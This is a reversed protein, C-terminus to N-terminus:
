KDKKYQKHRKYLQQFNLEYFIDDSYVFGSKSYDTMDYDKGNLKACCSGCCHIVRTSVIRWIKVLQSELAFLLVLSASLSMWIIM